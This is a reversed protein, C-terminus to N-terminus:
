GYYVAITWEVVLVQDAAKSVGGTSTYAIWRDYTTTDITYKAKIAAADVTYSDTSRDEWKAYVEEHDTYSRRELVSPPSIRKIENGNPDTLKVEDLKGLLVNEEGALEGCVGIAFEGDLTNPIRKEEVVRGTKRDVLRVNLFGKVRARERM